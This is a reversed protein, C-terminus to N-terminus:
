DHTDVVGVLAIATVLEWDLGGDPKEPSPNHAPKFILRYPGDLDVSLQGACDGKLEHCRGPLTRMIRLCAAARLDDLRRRILKARQEGHQRLVRKSDNWNLAEGSSAFLIEM